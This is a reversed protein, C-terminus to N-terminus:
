IEPPLPSGLTPLGPAAPIFSWVIPKFVLDMRKCDAPWFGLILTGPPQTEGFAGLFPKEQRKWSGSARATGSHLLHHGCATPWKLPVLGDPKSGKEAM